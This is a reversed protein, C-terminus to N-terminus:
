SLAAAVWDLAAAPALGYHYFDVSAAGAARVAEVKAKLNSPGDCDPWMPRLAVHLPSAGANDYAELDAAVRAPDRAYALVQVGAAVGAVAGLDLGFAGALEAAPGGSPLGDAYGKAAGSPDMVVVDCGAAADVVDSVLSTVVGCRVSMYAELDVPAAPADGALRVDVEVRV